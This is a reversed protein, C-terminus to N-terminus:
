PGSRHRGSPPVASRSASEAVNVCQARCLAVFGFLQDRNGQDAIRYQWPRPTIHRGMAEFVREAEAFQQGAWLAHALCNLDQLSRDAPDAVAFWQDFAALADHIAYSNLWHMDLAERPLRLWREVRVYVPLMLLDAGAPQEARSIAWRAYADAHSVAAPNPRGLWYMLMRHYAERNYPDLAHARKLLGWPGSPLMPDEARVRHEAAQQEEDIVALALFCTWPVPNDPAERVAAGCAALAEHWLADTTSHEARYARLAREVAVRARMVTVTPGPEESEWAEIVDSGAASAGLVQSRYTWLGWGHSTDTRALLTRVAMWRGASLEELAVRLDNDFGAPHMVPRWEAEAV